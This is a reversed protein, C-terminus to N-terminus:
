IKNQIEYFDEPNENSIKIDAKQEEIQIIFVIKKTPLLVEIKYINEKIEEKIEGNNGEKVEEKLIKQMAYVEPM